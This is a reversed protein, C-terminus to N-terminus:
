LFTTSIDQSGGGGQIITKLILAPNILTLVRNSDNEIDDDNVPASIMPYCEYTLKMMDIMMEVMM